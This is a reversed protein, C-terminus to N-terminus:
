IEEYMIRQQQMMREQAAAPNVMQGNAAMMMNPAPAMSNQLPSAQSMRPTQSMPRNIPTSQVNPTANVMRPTGAHSQQSRQASMNHAAPNGMQPHNQNVVSGTRPPSGGMSSTSNQMPINSMPSSHNQLNQPTNNRVIPSPIQAQSAQQQHFRAQAQIGNAMNAQPHAHQIQGQTPAGQIGLQQQSGAAMAARRRATESQQNTAAQAMAQQNMKERERKEADLRLRERERDQQSKREAEQQRAKEAKKNEEISAKINELTKFREFRPEFSAGGAQGDGDAPNAGGQAGSLNSSLREDLITMYREQEAAAAEDAALEAVTRKRTKPSPPKELHMPHALSDLLAATELANRVPELILPATTSLTIQSEAAHFNTGDLELKSKKQRKAPPAMNTLPTSPIATSPTPPVTASLPGAISDHRTERSDLNGSRTDTAKIVMDAHNSIPTPHLVITSLKPKKAQTSSKGRQGDMPFAPAPM